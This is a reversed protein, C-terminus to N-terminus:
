SEIVALAWSLLMQGVLPKTVLWPQNVTLPALSRKRFSFLGVRWAILTSDFSPNRCETWAIRRASPKLDGGGISSLSRPKAVFVAVAVVVGCLLPNLSCLCDSQVQIEETGDEALCRRSIVLNYTKSLIKACSPFITKRKGRKSTTWQLKTGPYNALM